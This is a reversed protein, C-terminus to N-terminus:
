RFVITTGYAENTELLINDTRNQYSLSTLEEYVPSPPRAQRSEIALRHKKKVCYVRCAILSIVIVTIIIVVLPIVSSVTAIVATSM